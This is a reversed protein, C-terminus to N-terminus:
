YEGFQAVTEPEFLGSAYRLGSVIQGDQESPALQLDFKAVQHHAHIPSIDLGPLILDSDQDQEWAFLVQFLPSHALSRRTSVCIASSLSCDNDVRS